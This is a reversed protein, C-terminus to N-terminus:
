IYPNLESTKKFDQMEAPIRIRLWSPKKKVDVSM